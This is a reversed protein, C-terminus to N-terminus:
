RHFQRLDFKAPGLSTARVGLHSAAAGALSSGLGLLVAQPHTCHSLAQWLAQWPAGEVTAGPSNGECEPYVSKAWPDSSQGDQVVVYLRVSSWRGEYAHAVGCIGLCTGHWRLPAHSSPLEPTFLPREAPACFFDSHALWCLNSPVPLQCTV